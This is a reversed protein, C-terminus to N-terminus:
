RHVEFLWHFDKKVAKAVGWLFKLSPSKGASATEVKCLYVKHVGLKEALEEQTLGADFRAQYINQGLTRLLMDYTMLVGLAM